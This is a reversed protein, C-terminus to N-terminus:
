LLAGQNALAVPYDEKFFYTFLYFFLIFHGFFLRTLPPLCHAAATILIALVLSLGGIITLPPRSHAVSINTHPRRPAIILTTAKLAFPQPNSDLWPQERM